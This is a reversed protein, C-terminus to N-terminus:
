NETAMEFTFLKMIDSVVKEKVSDIESLTLDVGKYRCLYDDAIKQMQEVSPSIIKVHLKTTTM